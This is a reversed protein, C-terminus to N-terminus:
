AHRTRLPRSKTAYRLRGDSGARWLGSMRSEFASTANRSLMAATKRTLAPLPRTRVSAPTNLSMRSMVPETSMKPACIVGTCTRPYETARTPRMRYLVVPLM